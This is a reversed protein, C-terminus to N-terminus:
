RGGGRGSGISLVLDPRPSSNPNATGARIAPTPQPGDYQVRVLAWKSQGRRLIRDACDFLRVTCATESDDFRDFGTSRWEELAEEFLDDLLSDARNAFVRQMRLAVTGQLHIKVDRLM